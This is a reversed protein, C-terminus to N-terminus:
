LPHPHSSNGNQLNNNKMYRLLLGKRDRHVFPILIHLLLIHIHSFVNVFDIIIYIHSFFMNQGKTFIGHM